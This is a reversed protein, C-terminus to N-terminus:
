GYLIYHLRASNEAILGFSTNKSCFSTNSALHEFGPEAKRYQKASFKSKKGIQTVGVIRKGVGM